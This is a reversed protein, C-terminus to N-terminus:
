RWSGAAELLLAWIEIQLKFYFIFLCLCEVLSTVLLWNDHCLAQCSDVSCFLIFDITREVEFYSCTPMAIATGPGVMTWGKALGYEDFVDVAM